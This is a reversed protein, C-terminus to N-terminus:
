WGAQSLATAAAPPDTARQYTQTEGWVQPDGAYRALFQQLKASPATVLLRSNVTVYSLQIRKQELLGRIADEDLTATEVRDGDVRLRIVGHPYIASSFKGSTEQFDLFLTGGVRFLTAPAPDKCIPDCGSITYSSDGTRKFEWTDSGNTWYGELAPDDYLDSQTYFPQLAPGCASTAFLAAVGATWLM